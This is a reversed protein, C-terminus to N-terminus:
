EVARHRRNTRGHVSTSFAASPHSGVANIHDRDLRISNSPRHANQILTLFGFDGAMSRASSPVHHCALPSAAVLWSFVVTPQSLGPKGFSRYTAM